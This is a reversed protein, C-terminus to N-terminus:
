NSTAYNMIICLKSKIIIFCDIYSVSIFYNIIICLKRKKNIFCDILNLNCEIKFTAFRVFM